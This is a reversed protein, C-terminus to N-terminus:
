RNFVGNMKKKADVANANMCNLIIPLTMGLEMTIKM